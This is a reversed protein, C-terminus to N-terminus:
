TETDNLFRGPSGAFCFTPSLRAHPNLRLLTGQVVPSFLASFQPV